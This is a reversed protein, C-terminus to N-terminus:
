GAGDGLYVPSTTRWIGERFFLNSFYHLKYGGDKFYIRGTFRCYFAIWGMEAESIQISQKSHTEISNTESNLIEVM